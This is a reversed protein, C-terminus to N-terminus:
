HLGNALESLHCPGSCVKAEGWLGEPTLTPSLPGMVLDGEGGLFTRQLIGERSEASISSSFVVSALGAGIGIWLIQSQTERRNRWPMLGTLTRLIGM